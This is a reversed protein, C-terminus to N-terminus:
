QEPLVSALIFVLPANWNICTENSAYSAEQDLYIKAPPLPPLNKTPADQRRQNPGGCLLGPWPEM